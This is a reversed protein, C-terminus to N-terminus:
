LDLPSAAELRLTKKVTHTYIMTTRVDSHGLLEQITRINFNNQLLHSAYSHRFTHTTARKCIGADDVAKRLAKQVHSSHLHYRKMEGSDRQRTLQRAPFLWQWIFDRAANSYKKELANMLFVGRYGKAQDRRHIEKLALVHDQLEDKLAKPLPVTRDKQGKGDHVTVMEVDFNLCQIRLNLCEFLRLGCGYLMKVVLDFPPELHGLVADVEERSLVVPIYPRRKARVVGDIKGFEKGLVHRYFFLLSNFALNQTSAAIKREVALHTLFEKVDETTLAQPNKSRTFTQFKSVYHRYSKLTKASYHRIAIEEALKQFENQWSQGCGARAEVDNSEQKESWASSEQKKETWSSKTLQHTDQYTQHYTQQRARDECQALGNSDIFSNENESGVRRYGQSFRGNTSQNRSNWGRGEESTNYSYEDYKVGDNMPYPAFHNKEVEVEFFALVALRAQECFPWGHRNV